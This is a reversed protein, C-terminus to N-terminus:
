FDYRLEIGYMRPEGYVYSTFGLSTYFPTGALVYDKNLANKVYLDVAAGSNGINKYSFRAGLLGYGPAVYKSGPVIQADAILTSGTYAYNLALSLKGHPEPSPLDVVASLDGSWKPSQAFPLGALQAQSTPDVFNTYKPETYNVAGSISLYAFPQVTTQFQAGNVNASGANTLVRVLQGNLFKVLNRQLNSYDSHFIALMSRYNVSGIRGSQKAGFEYDTLTEPQVTTLAAPVSAGGNFGGSRYGRRNTFYLLTHDGPTYNLSLTYTPKSFVKSVTTEPLTVTNAADVNSIALERDDWTYRAGATLSLESMFHFDAQAFISKSVNTVVDTLNPYGGGFVSAGYSEQGHERFYYLGTIYDLKDDLAKGLVQLEESVQRVATNDRLQFINFPFGSTGGDVAQITRWNFINKIKLDGYELSSTNTVGYNYASNRVDHDEAVVHVSRAQQQQLAALEAAIVAPPLPAATNVAVPVSGGGTGHGSYADLILLNSFDDTPKILLSARGSNSDDSRVYNGTVVNLVYGDRRSIDTALRLAAKDGLPLNIAGQGERLAFNGATAQVYGEVTNLVPANPEILIAGGTLNRGFLTGQPGSLVQVSAIDYLSRTLGQARMEVADAFYVGVAPDGTVLGATDSMGRITFALQGLQGSIPSVHLEPAIQGLESMSTINAAQLQAGSVATVSEPVKNIDEARRRATVVIEQLGAASPDSLQPSEEASAAVCGLISTVACAAVASLLSLRM